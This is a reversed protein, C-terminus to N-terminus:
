KLYVDSLLGYKPERSVGLSIHQLSSLFSANCEVHLPFQNETALILAMGYIRFVSCLLCTKSFSTCLPSPDNYHANEKTVIAECPVSLLNCYRSNFYTSLPAVTGSCGLSTFVWYIHTVKVVDLCCVYVQSQFIWFESEWEVSLRKNSLSLASQRSIVAAFWVLMRCWLHQNTKIFWPKPM